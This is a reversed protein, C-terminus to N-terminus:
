QNKGSNSDIIDKLLNDMMEGLQKRMDKKKGNIIKAINQINTTKKNTKGANPASEPIFLEYVDMNLAQAINKLTRDSVWTKCYEIDVMHPVSIHSLEALRAQSLHLLSRAKRINEALISRLDDSKDM